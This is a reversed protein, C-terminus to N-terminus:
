MGGVGAGLGFFSQRDQSPTARPATNTTTLRINKGGTPKVRANAAPAELRPSSMAEVAADATAAAFPSSFALLQANQSPMALATLVKPIMAMLRKM